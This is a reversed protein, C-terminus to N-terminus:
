RKSICIRCNDSYVSSILVCADNIDTQLSSAMSAIDHTAHCCIVHVAFRGYHGQCTSSIGIVNVTVTAPIQCDMSMRALILTVTAPPQCDMPASPMASQGLITGPSGLVDQVTWQSDPKQFERTSQGSIGPCSDSKCIDGVGIQLLPM